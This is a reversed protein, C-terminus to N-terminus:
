NETEWVCQNIGPIHNTSVQIHGHTTNNFNFLTNIGTVTDHVCRIICTIFNYVHVGTQDVGTLHSDKCVNVLMDLIPVSASVFRNNYMYM